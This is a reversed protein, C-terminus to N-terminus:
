LSGCSFFLLGFDFFSKVPREVRSHHHYVDFLRMRIVNAKGGQAENLALVATRSLTPPRKCGEDKTYFTVLSGTPLLGSQPAQNNSM